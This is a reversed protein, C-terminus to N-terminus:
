KIAKLFKQVLSIYFFVIFTISIYDLEKHKFVPIMKTLLSIVFWYSVLAIIYMFFYIIDNLLKQTSM